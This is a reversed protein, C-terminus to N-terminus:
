TRVAAQIDKSFNGKWSPAWPNLSCSGPGQAQPGTEAYTILLQSDQCRTRGTPPGLVTLTPTCLPTHPVWVM